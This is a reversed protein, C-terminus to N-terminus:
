EIGWLDEHTLPERNLCLQGAWWRLNFAANRLETQELKPRPIPPNGNKALAQKVAENYAKVKERHKELTSGPFLSEVLAQVAPHDLAGLRRELATLSEKLAANKRNGESLSEGPFHEGFLKERVAQRWAELAAANRQVKDHELQAFAASITELEDDFPVFDYIRLKEDEELPTILARPIKAGDLTKADATAPNPVGALKSKPTQQFVEIMKILENMYYRAKEPAGQALTKYSALMEPTIRHGFTGGAWQTAQPM